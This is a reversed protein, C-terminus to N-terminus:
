EGHEADGHLRHAFGVNSDTLNGYGSVHVGLCAACRGLENVMRAPHAM